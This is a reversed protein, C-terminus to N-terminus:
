LKNYRELVDEVQPREEIRPSLHAYCIVGDENAVYIAPLVLPSGDLRVDNIDLEEKFIKSLEGDLTYILAHKRLFNHNVDSLITYHSEAKPEEVAAMEAAEDQDLSVELGFEVNNKDDVQPEDEMAKEVMCSASDKRDPTIVLLKTDRNEPLSILESYRSLEPYLQECMQASYIMIIAKHHNLIDQTSSGWGGSDYLLADEIPHGISHAMKAATEGQQMAWADLLRLMTSRPASIQEDTETEIQFLQGM